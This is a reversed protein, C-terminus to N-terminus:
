FNLSCFASLLFAVRFTWFPEGLMWLSVQQLAITENTHKYQSAYPVVMSCHADEKRFLFEQLYELLVVFNITSSPRCRLLVFVSDLSSVM